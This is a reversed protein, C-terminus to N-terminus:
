KARPLRRYYFLSPVFPGFQESLTYYGGGDLEWAIAEGQPEMMYPLALGPRKLAEHISEGPSRKWYYVKDYTKILIEKGEPSIDGAVVFTYSLTGIKELVNVEKTSQPYKALYVQVKAERKSIIYLDKTDPDLMLTEADRPGDPYRFRLTDFDTLFRDQMLNLSDFLPEKVRYVFVTKHQAMNDGIDAIYLYSAEEIPGPGATIDEWDRSQLGKLYYTFRGRGKGDLLFVRAKSGSDNHSWLLGPNTRSAVLGSAEKLNKNKVVGRNDGIAFLTDRLLYNKRQGFHSSGAGMILVLITCSLLVLITKPYHM